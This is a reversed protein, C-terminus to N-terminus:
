IVDPLELATTLDTLTAARRIVDSPNLWQVSLGQVKADKIFAVMVQLGATDFKEVSNAELLVASKASLIELLKERWAMVVSIDISEGCNVTIPNVASLAADNQNIM